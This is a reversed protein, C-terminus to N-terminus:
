LDEWKVYRRALLGEVVVFGLLGAIIYLLEVEGIESLSFSMQIIRACVYTPTLFALQAIQPPLLEHPYFVPPLVTLLATIMPSYTWLDKLEKARSGIIFGWVSITIWLLIVCGGIVLLNFVTVPVVQSILFLIMVLAPVTIILNGLAIGFYYPLPGSPSAVFVDQLRLLVRMHAIDTEVVITSAVTISILGGILAYPMIISGVYVYAFFIITFPTILYNLAWIPQRKFPILNTLYAILFSRWLGMLLRRGRM